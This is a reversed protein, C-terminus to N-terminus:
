AVLGEWDPDYLPGDEVVDGSTEPNESGEGAASDPGSCAPGLLLADDEGGRAEEELLAVRLRIRGFTSRAGPWGGM